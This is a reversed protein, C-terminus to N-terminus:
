KAKSKNKWQWSMLRYPDPKRWSQLWVVAHAAQTEGNVTVELDLRYNMGAVVQEEAGLIKVLTISTSKDKDKMVEEQATIAFEAAAVVDKNTVSVTANGGPKATAVSTAFSLVLVVIFLCKKIM